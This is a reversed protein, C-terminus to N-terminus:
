WRRPRCALEDEAADVILRGTAQHGVGDLEVDVAADAILNQVWDASRAGGALLFLTDGHRAYWIEIRHRRGSHRGTTTLYCFDDGPVVRHECVSTSTRFSRVADDARRPVVAQDPAGRSPCPGCASSAGESSSRTSRAAWTISPSGRHWEELGVAMEMRALHSGLCRHPGGGFSLHNNKERDFLVEDPRDYEDPDHMVTPLALMVMEGARIPVGHFDIDQSLKRGEMVLPFARLLEEITNPIISPETAIRRRDADSTALHLMAYSLASKVTDLGALVLQNFMNLVDEDPM